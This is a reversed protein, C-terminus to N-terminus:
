LVIGKLQYYEDKMKEFKGKDVVAGERFIAEGEKGPVSSKPNLGTSSPLPVTHDFEPLCDGARGKHGERIFIARQLNFIREGVTDLGQEDMERGTVASFVKSPLSPDGVHERSHKVDMMPWAFDCLILCEKAYVRDQIKKAALAKGAYTSFDLALESGLFKKAISRIVDSSVYAGDIKNCWDWWLHVPFAVEHLQPMPLRPETAFTLSNTIYIRPEYPYATGTRPYIWNKLQETAAHGLEEAAKFIGQALMDGFGDRQSIKKVLTQIFELSGMKSLPIGITEDRLVGARYCKALWGMITVISLVDLGYDNCIRGAHFHIDDWEGYQKSPDAYFVAAFCLYKGTDGNAAKYTARTCGDICGYCATKKLKQNLALNEPVYSSWM